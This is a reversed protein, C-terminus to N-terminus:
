GRNRRQQGHDDDKSSRRLIGSAPLALLALGTM